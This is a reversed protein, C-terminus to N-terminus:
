REITGASACAATGDAVVCPHVNVCRGACSAGAPRIRLMCALARLCACLAKRVVEVDHPDGREGRGGMEDWGFGRKGARLGEGGGLCARREGVAACVDTTIMMQEIELGNWARGRTANITDTHERGYAGLTSAM